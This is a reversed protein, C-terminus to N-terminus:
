LLPEKREGTVTFQKIKSWYPRNTLYGSNCEKPQDSGAHLSGNSKVKSTSMKIM